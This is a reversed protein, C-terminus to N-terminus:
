TQIHYIEHMCDDFDCMSPCKVINGREKPKNIIQQNFGCHQGWCSTTDIADTYHWVAPLAWDAETHSERPQCTDYPSPSLQTEWGVSLDLKKKKQWHSTVPEPGHPVATLHTPHADSSKFRVESQDGDWGADSQRTVFPLHLLQFCCFSSRMQNATCDTWCVWIFRFNLVNPALLKCSCQCTYVSEKERHRYDAWAGTWVSGAIDM